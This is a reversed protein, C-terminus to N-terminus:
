SSLPPVKHLTLAHLSAGLLIRFQARLALLGRKGGTRLSDRLLVLTSLAGRALADLRQHVVAGEHLQITEDHVAGVREAEVFLLKQAVTDDGAAGRQVPPLDKQERM